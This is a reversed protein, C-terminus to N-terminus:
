VTARLPTSRVDLRWFEGVALGSRKWHAVVLRWYPERSGTRHAEAM